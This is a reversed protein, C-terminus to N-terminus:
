QGCDRGMGVLRDALNVQQGGLLPMSQQDLVVAPHLAPRARVLRSNGFLSRVGGAQGSQELRLDGDRRVRHRHHEVLRLQAVGLQIGFGVPQGMRQDGMTDARLADDGQQQRAGRIQDDGQQRYQFRPRGIQRHVWVVRSRPDTGHQAIGVRGHHQRASLSHRQDGLRHIRRPQHHVLWRGENPQVAIGGGVRAVTLAGRRQLRFMRSIHDVRRTRGTHRFAHHHRGPGQHIQQQPVVADQGASGAGADGLEGGQAEVHRRLLYEGREGEALGQHHGGVLDAAAGILQRHPQVPMPHRLQECRIEDHFGQGLGRQLLAQRKGEEFVDGLGALRQGQGARHALEIMEHRASPQVVVVARGLGMDGSAAGQWGVQVGTRQRGGDAPGDVIEPDVDEVVRQPQSRGAHRALKIDGPRTQRPAIEVAGAEGGLAEDGVRKPTHEAFAACAHVAGAVVHAPAIIARQLEKAAHVVLHLNAAEADFQAVDLRGQGLMGFQRLRHDDGMCVAGAFLPQHGIGHRDRVTHRLGLRQAVPQAVAQRFVHHRRRHHNQIAQRQGM